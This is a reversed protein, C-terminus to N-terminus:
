RGPKDLTGDRMLEVQERHEEPSIRQGTFPDPFTPKLSTDSITPAQSPERVRKPPTNVIETNAEVLDIFRQDAEAQFIERAEPDTEQEKVYAEDLALEGIERQIAEHGQAIVEALEPVPEKQM